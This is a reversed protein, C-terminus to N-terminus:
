WASRCTATRSGAACWPPSDPTSCSAIRGPCGSSRFRGSAPSAVVRVRDDDVALHGATRRASCGSNQSSGPGALDQLEVPNQRRGSKAAVHLLGAHRTLALRATLAESEGRVSVGRLVRVHGGVRGLRLSVPMLISVPCTATTVPPVLPMPKAIASASTRRPTCRSSRRCGRPRSGRRQRRAPRGAQARPRAHAGVDADVGVQVRQGVRGDLPETADIEDAVVGAHHTFLRRRPLLSQLRPPPQDVHLQHADDVTHAGEGRQEDRLAGAM